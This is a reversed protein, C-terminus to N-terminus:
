TTAGGPQYRLLGEIELSEIAVVREARRSLARM